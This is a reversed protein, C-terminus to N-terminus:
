PTRPWSRGPTAWGPATWPSRRPLRHRGGRAGGGPRQGRGAPSAGRLRRTGPMDLDVVIASAQERRAAELLESGDAVQVVRDAIAALVPRFVASFAPDDDASIIVPCGSPRGDPRGARSPRCPCPSGRARARRAPWPSPGASCNWSGARTPSASAPGSRAASTRARPGPLVGRLGPGPGRRPDRGRHGGRRDAPRRGRRGGVLVEVRVHGAETFKLSNGVLNRLVRTLMTEDTVVTPLAAPDPFVLEVAPNSASPRMVAALQPSCCASSSRPSSRSWSGPSPGPSTWCTTSWAHAADGRVRRDPAM